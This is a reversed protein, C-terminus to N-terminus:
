WDKYTFDPKDVLVIDQYDVRVSRISSPAPETLNGDAFAMSIRNITFAGNQSSYTNELTFKDQPYGLGSEYTGSAL